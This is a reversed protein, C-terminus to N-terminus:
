AAEMGAQAHPRYNPLRRCAAEQPAILDAYRRREGDPLERWGALWRYAHLLAVTVADDQEAIVADSIGTPGTSSEAGSVLTHGPRLVGIQFTFGSVPYGRDLLEFTPVGGDLNLDWRRSTPRRPAGTARTPDYVATIQSRDRLWEAQASMSYSQANAVTTKSIRDPVWLDRLGLRIMDDLGPVDQTAVGPLPWSVELSVSTALTGSFPADMALAGLEPVAHVVRRREGIQSGSTVLAWLGAFREPGAGDARLSPLFAQTLGGCIAWRAPDPGTAQVTTKTAAYPGLRLGLAQRLTGLTVSM